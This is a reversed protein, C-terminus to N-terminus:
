PRNLPRSCLSLSSHLDFQIHILRQGNGHQHQHQALEQPFPHPQQLPEADRCGDNAAHQEGNEGAHAIHGAHGLKCKVVRQLFDAHHHEEGRHAELCVELHQFAAALGHDHKQAHDDHQDDALVKDRHPQRLQQAHIGKHAQAGAGDGHHAAVARGTGEARHQFVEADFACGGQAGCRGGVAQDRAAHHAARQALHENLPVVQQGGHHGFVVAQQHLLLDLM